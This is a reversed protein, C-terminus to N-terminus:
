IKHDIKLEIESTQNVQIKVYGSIESSLIRDFKIQDEGVGGRPDRGYPRTFM